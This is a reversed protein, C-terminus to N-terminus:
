QLCQLLTCSTKLVEAAVWLDREIEVKDSTVLPLWQLQRQYQRRLNRFVNCQGIVHRLEFTTQLHKEELDLHATVSIPWTSYDLLCNLGVGERQFSISVFWLQRSANQTPFRFFLSRFTYVRKLLFSNGWCGDRCYHNPLSYLMPMCLVTITNGPM